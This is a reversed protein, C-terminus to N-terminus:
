FRFIDDEDPQIPEDGRERDPSPTGPGSTLRGLLNELKEVRRELDEVAERLEQVEEM